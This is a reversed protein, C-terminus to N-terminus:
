AAMCGSASYRAGSKLMSTCPRANHIDPFRHSKCARLKEGAKLASQSLGPVHRLKTLDGNVAKVENNSDRYQGKHLARQIQKM